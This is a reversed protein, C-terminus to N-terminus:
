QKGTSTPPSTTDPEARVGLVELSDESEGTIHRGRLFIEFGRLDKRAFLASVAPPLKGRLLLNGAAENAALDSGVVLLIYGSQMPNPLFAVDVYNVHDQTEGTSVPYITEEGPLPKKNLFCFENKTPNRTYQFNTRDGFLSVWPNSPPAGILITSGENFDRVHIDRAYRITGHGGLRDLAEVFDFGMKAESVTTNRKTALQSLVRRVEPDQVAAIQRQPFDGSSYDAASIDVDSIFQIMSESTDPLVVSVNSDWRALFPIFGNGPNGKAQTTAVSNKREVILTTALIGCAVLCLIFGVGTWTRWWPSVAHLATAAPPDTEPSSPLDAPRSQPAAAPQRHTNPIFQPLYSGRPITLLVAEDPSDESFYRELKRRLHTFQARVINDSSPDFDPRRELVDCAIEYEHLVREPELIAARSVYVLIKRLQGARQFGESALIRNVLLWREDGALRAELVGVDPPIQTTVSM